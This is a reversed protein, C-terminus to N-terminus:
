FFKRCTIMTKKGNYTSYPNGYFKKLSIFDNKNALLLGDKYFSYNVKVKLVRLDKFSEKSKASADAEHTISFAFTGNTRYTNM